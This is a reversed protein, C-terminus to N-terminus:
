ECYETEDAVQSYFWVVSKNCYFFIFFIAFVRGVFLRAALAVWVLHLSVPFSFLGSICFM